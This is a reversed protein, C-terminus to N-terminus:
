WDESARRRIVAPKALHLRSESLRFSIRRLRPAAVTSWRAGHWLRRDAKGNVPQGCERRGYVPALSGALARQRFARTSQRGGTEGVVATVRNHVPGHRPGFRSRVDSTLGTITLSRRRALQSQSLGAATRAEILARALDFEEGLAEYADKYDADERWRRHLESIKTM